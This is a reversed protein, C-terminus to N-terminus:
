VGFARIAAFCAFNSLYLYSRLEFEEILDYDTNKVLDFSYHSSIRGTQEFQRLRKILM